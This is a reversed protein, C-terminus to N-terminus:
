TKMQAKHHPRSSEYINSVNIIHNMSTCIHKMMEDNQALLSLFSVNTKTRSYADVRVYVYM